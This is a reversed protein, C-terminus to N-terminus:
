SSVTSETSGVSIEISKARISTYNIYTAANRPIFSSMFLDGFKIIMHSHCYRRFIFEFLLWVRYNNFKM